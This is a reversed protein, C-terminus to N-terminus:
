RNKRKRLDRRTLPKEENEAMERWATVPDKGDTRAKQTEARLHEGLDYPWTPWKERPKRWVGKGRISVARHMWRTRRLSTGGTYNIDSFLEDAQRKTLYVQKIQRSGKRIVYLFGFVYVYDHPVAADNQPGWQLWFLYWPVSAINHYFSKPVLWIDGNHDKYAFMETTKFIKKSGSVLYIADGNDDVFYWQGGKKTIRPDASVPTSKGNRLLEGKNPKYFWM